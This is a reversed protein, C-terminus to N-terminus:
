REYGQIIDAAEEVSRFMGALGGHKQVLAIFNGQERTANKGPSKGELAVFLAVKTGVMEPTVELSRWGILDSSGVCLGYTVWEGGKAQLAGCNNRFLRVDGRSLTTRVDNVIQKESM